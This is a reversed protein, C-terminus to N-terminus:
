NEKDVLDVEEKEEELTMPDVFVFPRPKMEESRLILKNNLFLLSM